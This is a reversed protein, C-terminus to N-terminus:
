QRPPPRPSFRLAARPPQLRPAVFSAAARRMASRAILHERAAVLLLMAAALPAMSVLTQSLTIVVEPIVPTDLTAVRDGIAPAHLLGALAWVAIAKRGRLLPVGQRRLAALAAVLAAAALWKLLTAPSALLVGDAIQRAFLWVHFAALALASGKLLRGLM